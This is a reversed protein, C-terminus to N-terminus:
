IVFENEIWLLYLCFCFLWECEGNGCVLWVVGVGGGGGGGREPYFGFRVSLLYLSFLKESIIVTSYM